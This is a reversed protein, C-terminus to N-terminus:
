PPAVFVYPASASGDGDNRRQMAGLKNSSRLFFSVLRALSAFQLIYFERRSCPACFSPFLHPERVSPMRVQVRLRMIGFVVVHQACRSDAYAESLYVSGMADASSAAAENHTAISHRMFSLTTLTAPAPNSTPTMSTASFAAGALAAGAGVSSTGAMGASLHNASSAFM